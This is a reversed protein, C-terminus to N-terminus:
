GFWYMGIAQRATTNAAEVQQKLIALRRLVILSHVLVINLLALVTLVAISFCSLRTLPESSQLEGFLLWISVASIIGTIAIFSIGSKSKLASLVPDSSPTATSFLREKVWFQGWSSVLTFVAVAIMIWDRTEMHISM